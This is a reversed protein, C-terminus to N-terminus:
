VVHFAVDKVEGSVNLASTMLSVNWGIVIHLSVFDQLAVSDFACANWRM